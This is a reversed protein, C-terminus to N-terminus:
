IAPPEGETNKLTYLEFDRSVKEPDLKLINSFFAEAKPTMIVTGDQYHEDKGKVSFMFSKAMTCANLHLLQCPFM